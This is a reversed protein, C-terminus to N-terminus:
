PSLSFHLKGPTSVFLFALVLAIREQPDLAKSTRPVRPLTRMARVAHLARREVRCPGVKLCTAPDRETSPALLAKTPGHQSSLPVQHDTTRSVQRLRTTLRIPRHHDSNTGLDNTPGQAQSPKDSSDAKRPSDAPARARPAHARSAACGAPTHPPKRTAHALAPM